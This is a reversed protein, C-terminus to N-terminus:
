RVCFSFAQISYAHPDKISLASKCSNIHRFFTYHLQYGYIGSHPCSHYNWLYVKLCVGYIMCALLISVNRVCIMGLLTKVLTQESLARIRITTKTFLLDVM